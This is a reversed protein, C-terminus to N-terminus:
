PESNLKFFHCASRIRETLVTAGLIMFIPQYVHVRSSEMALRM